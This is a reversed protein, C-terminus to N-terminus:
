FFELNHFEASIEASSGRCVPCGLIMFIGAFCGSFGICDLIDWNWGFIMKRLIKENCCCEWFVLYIILLCINCVKENVMKKKLSLCFRIELYM